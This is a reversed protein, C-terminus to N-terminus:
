FLLCESVKTGKEVLQTYRASNGCRGSTFKNDYISPKEYSNPDENHFYCEGTNNYICLPKGCIKCRKRKM